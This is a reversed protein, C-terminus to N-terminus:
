WISSATWRPIDAADPLDKPFYLSTSALLQPRPAPKPPKRSPPNAMLHNFDALAGQAMDPHTLEPKGYILAPVHRKRMREFADDFGVLDNLDVFGPSAHQKCQTSASQRLVKLPAWRSRRHRCGPANCTHEVWWSLGFSKDIALFPDSAVKWIGIIEPVEPPSNLRRRIKEIQDQAACDAQIEDDFDFWLPANGEGSRAFLQFILQQFQNQGMENESIRVWFGRDRALAQVAKLDLQMAEAVLARPLPGALSRAVLHARADKVQKATLLGRDQRHMAETLLQQRWDSRLVSPNWIPLFQPDLQRVTPLFCKGSVPPRLRRDAQPELRIHKPNVEM